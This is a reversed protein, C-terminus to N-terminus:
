SFCRPCCTNGMSIPKVNLEGCNDCDYICTCERVSSTDLALKREVIATIKDVARWISEPNSIVLTEKIAKEIENKM